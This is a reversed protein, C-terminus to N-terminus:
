LSQGLREAPVKPGWEAISDPAQQLEVPTRNHNAAGFRNLVITKSQDKGFCISEAACNQRSRIRPWTVRCTLLSSLFKEAHHLIADAVIKALEHRRLHCSGHCEDLGDHFLRDALKRFHKQDDQSIGELIQDHNPLKLGVTSAALELPLKKISLWDELELQMQLIVAKPLSDITRFTVFMAPDMQFWHPLNRESFDIEAEPDFANFPVKKPPSM